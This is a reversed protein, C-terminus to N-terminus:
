ADGQFGRHTRPSAGTHLRGYRCPPGGPRGLAQWRRTWPDLTAFLKDDAYAEDGTLANFLTSKGANTYGM